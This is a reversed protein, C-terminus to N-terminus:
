CRSPQVQGDLSFTAPKPTLRGQMCHSIQSAWPGETWGKARAIGETVSQPWGNRSFWIKLIPGLLRSDDM